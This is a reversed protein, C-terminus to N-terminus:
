RHRVCTGGDDVQQVIHDDLELSWHPSQLRVCKGCDDVQQVIHDQLEVSWHTKTAEDTAVTTMTNCEITKLNLAETLDHRRL